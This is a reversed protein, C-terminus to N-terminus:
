DFVEDPPWPQVRKVSVVVFYLGIVVSISARTQSFDPSMCMTLEIVKKKASSFRSECLPSM